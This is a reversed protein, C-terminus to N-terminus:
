PKEDYYYFPIRYHQYHHYKDRGLSNDGCIRKVCMMPVTDLKKVDKPGM